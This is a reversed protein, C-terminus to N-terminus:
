EYIKFENRELARNYIEKQLQDIMAVRRKNLLIKSIEERVFEVPPIQDQLKYELIRFHYKYRDDEVSIQSNSRLLGVKNPHDSLPTNLIIDEFRIWTSDELFYNSAHKLAIEKIAESQTGEGQKLLRELPQNQNSGKEMKLFNCRVIIEKLAFNESHDSYYAEIESAPINEDLNKELYSKEFDYVMLSYKYDLLKRNIENEDFAMSQAAERIMLQKRVWSQVYRNVLATSDTSSLGRSSLIEIESLRLKTGEVEAIVPNDEDEEEGSRFKFLDCSSLLLVLLSIGVKTQWSGITSEKRKM